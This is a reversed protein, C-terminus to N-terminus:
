GSLSVWSSASGMGGRLSTCEACACSLVFKTVFGRKTMDTAKFRCRREPGCLAKDQM